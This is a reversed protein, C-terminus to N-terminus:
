VTAAFSASRAHAATLARAESFPGSGADPGTRPAPGAASRKPGAAPNRRGGEKAFHLGLVGFVRPAAADVAIDLQLDDHSAIAGDAVHSQLAPEPGPEVLAGDIGDSLPSESGCPAKAHGDVDEDLDSHFELKSLCGMVM